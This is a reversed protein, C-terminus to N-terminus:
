FPTVGRVSILVSGGENLPFVFHKEKQEWKQAGKKKRRKKQKQKQTHRKGEKTGEFATKTSTGETSKTLEMFVKTILTSTQGFGTKKALVQLPYGQPHRVATRPLPGDCLVRPPRVSPLKGTAQWLEM